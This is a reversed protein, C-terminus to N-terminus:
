LGNKLVLSIERLTEKFPPILAAIKSHTFSSSFGVIWIAALPSFPTEVFGAVARIGEIYEEDDIAVKEERVKQLEKLYKEVDTITRSTYAKLGKQSLIKRVTDDDFRALYAKGLAGAYLPVRAGVRSTVKLEKDAEIVEIVIVREGRVVGLFVTEGSLDHLQQLYRLSVKRIEFEDLWKGLLEFLRPGLTYKKTIENRRLFEESELTCLIEFLTSKSISLERAIESLGREVGDSLLLLVRLGKRLSPVGRKMNLIGFMEWLM